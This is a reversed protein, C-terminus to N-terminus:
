GETPIATIFRPNISGASQVTMGDFGRKRGITKWAENANEQQSRPAHGGIIIYPVPKMQELLWKYDEEDVLYERREQM